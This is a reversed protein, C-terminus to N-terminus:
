AAAPEGGLDLQEVLHLYLRNLGLIAMSFLVAGVLAFLIGFGLMGGYVVDDGRGGDFIRTLNPMNLSTDLIGASMGVVAGAGASVFAMVIGGVLLLLLTHLVVGSAAEVFRRTVILYFAYVTQRVSAGSWIAAGALAFVFYLAAYMFAFLLIAAPLVLSFLLGGLFPIKCILVLVAVVLIVALVLVLGILLIGVLRLAAQVGDALAVRIDRPTRNLAQDMLLIGTASVGVSVLSYGLLAGIFIVAGHGTAASAMLLVMFAVGTGMLTLLARWNSLAEGSRLLLDLLSAASRTHSDQVQV